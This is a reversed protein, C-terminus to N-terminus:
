DHIEQASDSVASAPAAMLLSYTSPRCPLIQRIPLRTGNARNDPRELVTFGRFRNSQMIRGEAELLHIARDREVEPVLGLDLLVEGIAFVFFVFELVRM